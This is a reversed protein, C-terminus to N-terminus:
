PFAKVLVNLVCIIEELATILDSTGVHNLQQTFMSTPLVVSMSNM